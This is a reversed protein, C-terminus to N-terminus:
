IYHLFSYCPILGDKRSRSVRTRKVLKYSYVRQADEEETDDSNNIGHKEDNDPEDIEEVDFLTSHKLANSVAVNIDSPADIFTLKRKRLSFSLGFFRPASPPSSTFLHRPPGLQSLPDIAPFCDSM